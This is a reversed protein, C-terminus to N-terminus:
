RPTFQMRRDVLMEVMVGTQLWQLEWDASVVRVGLRRATALCICSSLSAYKLRSVAHYAAAEHAIEEDCPIVHLGLRAVAATAARVSSARALVAVCEAVNVANMASVDLLRAVPAGRPEGRAFSLLASADLVVADNTTAQRM